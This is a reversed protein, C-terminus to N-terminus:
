VFEEPLEVRMFHTVEDFPLWDTGEAFYIQDEYDIVCGYMTTGFQDCVLYRTEDKSFDDFEAIPQWNM